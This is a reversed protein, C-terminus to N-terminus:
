TSCKYLSCRKPIKSTFVFSFKLKQLRFIDLINDPVQFLLKLLINIKKNKNEKYQQKMNIGYSVLQHITTSYVLHEYYNNICIM